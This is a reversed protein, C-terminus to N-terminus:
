ITPSVFSFGEFTEQEISDLLPKNTPITLKVPERTFELEFNSVDASGNTTPKFPPPVARKEYASWDVTKFFSHERVKGWPSSPMGLRKKPDKDLFQVVCMAVDSETKVTKMTKMPQTTISKFMEKENRGCFPLKGEFMEYLVVGFSFWDVSENYDLGTIVEPALYHPTGCFTNTTVSGVSGEKCMGFDAIKVHGQSDLLINDPKLDRYVVGNDHLFQIGIVMEVAYFRARDEKFRKSKQIHFMLDGGNLYEMVFFLHTNTQFTCVLKTLFPCKNGLELVRREVLTSEVDNDELVVDKKLVKIAYTVRTSKKNSMQSASKREALLVKGFSGKGIVKLFTFDDLSNKTPVKNTLNQTRFISQRKLQPGKITLSTYMCTTRRNGISDDHRANSSSAVNSGAVASIKPEKKLSSGIGFDEDTTSDGSLSSTLAFKTNDNSLISYVENIKEEDNLVHIPKPRRSATTTQPEKAPKSPQITTQSVTELLENLIKQKIGCLNPVFKYCKKHCIANCEECKLGQRFLGFLMTGCHDCFTPSIFSHLLFRHPINVNFRESMYKTEESNKASGTCRSLLKDHCREHVACKCIQCNFGHKKFGWLFESCYSCFTPSKFYIKVFQHGKFPTVRQKHMAFRRQASMYVEEDEDDEDYTELEKKPFSPNLPTTPPESEKKFHKLLLILKCSPNMDLMTANWDNDLVCYGSLIHVGVTVEALCACSNSSGAKPLGKNKHTSVISIHILRRDYLHSDFFSNWELRMTRRNQRLELSGDANEKAEKIRIEVCTAGEGGNLGEVGMLKVRVFGPM